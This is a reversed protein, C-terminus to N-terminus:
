TFRLGLETALMRATANGMRQMTARPAARAALREGISTVVTFTFQALLECEGPPKELAEQLFASLEAVVKQEFALFTPTSSPSADASQLADHQAQAQGQIDFFAMVLQEFRQRPSLGASALLAALKQWTQEAEQEHLAILLAAKNPFYQYLSGVSVGAADAVRNTTFARAGFRHLVRTAAELLDARMQESRAQRPLKRPLLQVRATRRSKEKMRTVYAM